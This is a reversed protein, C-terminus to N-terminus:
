ELVRLNQSSGMMLPLVCIWVKVIYISSTAKTTKLLKYEGSNLKQYIEYYTANAVKDWSVTNGKAKPSVTVGSKLM